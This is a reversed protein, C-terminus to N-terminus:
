IVTLVKRKQTWRIWITMHAIQMGQQYLNARFGGM